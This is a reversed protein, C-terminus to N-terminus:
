RTLTLTLTLTLALAYVLDLDVVVRVALLGKGQSVQSHSQLDALPIINDNHDTHGRRTIAEHGNHGGAPHAKNNNDPSRKSVILPLPM